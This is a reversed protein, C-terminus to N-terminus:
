RMDENTGAAATERLHPDVFAAVSRTTLTVRAALDPQEAGHRSPAPEPQRTPLQQM